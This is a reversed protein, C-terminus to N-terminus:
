GVSYLNLTGTGSHDNASGEPLAIVDNGPAPS